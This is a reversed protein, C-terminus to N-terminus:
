ADEQKIRMGDLSGTSLLKPRMSSKPVGARHIPASLVMRPLDNDSPQAPVQAHEAPMFRDTDFDGAATRRIIQSVTMGAFLPDVPLDDSTHLAYDFESPHLKGQLIPDGPSANAVKQAFNNSWPWKLECDPQFFSIKMSHAAALVDYFIWKVSRIQPANPRLLFLLEGLAKAFDRDELNDVQMRPCDDWVHDRTNCLPCAKNSGYNRCPMVCKRAKHGAQGCNACTPARNDTRERRARAEEEWVAVQQRHRDSERWTVPEFAFNMFPSGSDRAAELICNALAHVSQPDVFIKGCYGNVAPRRPDHAIWNVQYRPTEVVSPEQVRYQTLVQITDVMPLRASGVHSDLRHPAWGVAEAEECNRPLTSIDTM